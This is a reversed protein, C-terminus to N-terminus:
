TKRGIQSIAKVPEGMIILAKDDTSIYVVGYEKDGLIFEFQIQLHQEFDRCYKQLALGYNTDVHPSRLTRSQLKRTLLLHGTFSFYTM